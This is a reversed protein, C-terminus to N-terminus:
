ITTDRTDGLELDKYDHLLLHAMSGDPGEFGGYSTGNLWPRQADYEISWGGTWGFHVYCLDLGHEEKLKTVTAEDGIIQEPPKNQLKYTYHNM